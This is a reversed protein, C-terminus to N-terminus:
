WGREQKLQTFGLRDQMSTVFDPYAGPLAALDFEAAVAERSGHELLFKFAQILVWEHTNTGACLTQYFESRLTVRHFSEESGELVVEYVNIGVMNVSIVVWGELVHVTSM